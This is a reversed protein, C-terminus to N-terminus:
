MARHFNLGAWATVPRVFPGPAASPRRDRTLAATALLAAVALALLEPYSTYGTYRFTIRYTGPPVTVGTLAPAIMEAPAPHGDITVTWGPDYSAALVVVARRRLRVTSTATGDALNAHEALVAGPPRTAPTGPPLTPPAPRAGAYAVTLYKDRGPLASAQYPASQSGIDARSAAITGTTDAVRIYSNSPLEYVRLLLNRLILVAGPPPKAPAQHAAQSATLIVYRIGFLAYDGPNAPHFRYEPQSMLSATRLNQGVEDIDLSELFEYMPVLGVAPYRRWDLPSGAYARGPGHARIVATMAAAARAQSQSAQAYAQAQVLDANVADYSALYHWAPFLYGVGAVAVLVGPAWALRPARWRTLRRALGALRTAQRGAAVAGPGALYIGALQSGMLFRRFFVDAHGPIIAALSGYTTRGFSLALCAFLLAALAREPGARRWRAASVALGAAALLSIVPLHGSDFVKGTVLWGLTTRAGFGSASPGQAVAQNIAAWRSYALLPVVLPVSAALAAAALMGARALRAAIGQRVVLAMVPIAGFALYGTEYHFAATLAILAAAPAIFRKDTMARWTLAWAFPLTWSAWLQTWVGFGAWM